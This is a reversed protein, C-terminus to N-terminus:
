KIEEKSKKNIIRMAKEVGRKLTEPHPNKSRSKDEYSV